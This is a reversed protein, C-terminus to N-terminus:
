SNFNFNDLEKDLEEPSYNIVPINYKKCESIFEYVNMGAIEAAASLSIKEERYLSLAYKQKIDRELQSYDGLYSYKDPLNIIVKMM